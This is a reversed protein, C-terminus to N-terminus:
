TKGNRAMKAFMDQATPLPYKDDEITANLVKDGSMPVSMKGNKLEACKGDYLVGYSELPDIEKEVLERLAYTVPRAKQYVANQEPKLKLTTTHGQITSGDSQFLYAYKSMLSHINSTAGSM